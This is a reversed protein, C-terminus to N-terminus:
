LHHIPTDKIVMRTGGDDGTDGNVVGGNVVVYKMRTCCEDNSIM